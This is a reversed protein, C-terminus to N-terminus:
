YCAHPRITPVLTHGGKPVRAVGADSEDIAQQGINVENAAEVEACSV